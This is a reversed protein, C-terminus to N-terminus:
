RRGILPGRLFAPEDPSKIRKEALARMRGNLRCSLFCLLGIRFTSTAASATTATRETRAIRTKADRWRNGDTESCSVQRTSYYKGQERTKAALRYGQGAQLNGKRSITM